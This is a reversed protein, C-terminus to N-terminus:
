FIAIFPAALCALGAVVLALLVAFISIVVAWIAIYLSFVIALIAIGIPFWVPFGLVALIIWIVQTGNSKAKERSKVVREKVLATVPKDLMANNVIEEISDVDAVAAEESMGDEIRDCIMEDYYEVMNDINAISAKQLETRLGDLFEQKSM